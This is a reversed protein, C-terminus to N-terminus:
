LIFKLYIKPEMAFILQNRNLKSTQRHEPAAAIQIVSYFKCSDSSDDSYKAPDTLITNRLRLRAVYPAARPFSNDTIYLRRTARYKEPVTNKTHSCLLDIRTLVWQM